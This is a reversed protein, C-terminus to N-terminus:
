GMLDENWQHVTELGAKEDYVLGLAAPVSGVYGMSSHWEDNASLSPLIRVSVGDLQRESDSVKVNTKRAQHLHGVLWERGQNSRWQDAAEVSMIANADTAKIHHTMGFLTNGYEYYRRLGTSNDVTVNKNGEAWIEIADGLFFVKKFDHNGPIIPVFVPAIESLEDIMKCMLARTERYVRQWDLESQQPTGSTTSPVKNIKGDDNFLDHGVVFQIQDIGEKSVKEALGHIARTFLDKQLDFNADRDMVVEGVALKDIHLDAPSIIAMKGRKKKARRKPVRVKVNKKAEEILERIEDRTDQVEVKPKFNGRVAYVNRPEKGGAQRVSCSFSAVSWERPDLGFFKLADAPASIDVDSYGLADMMGNKFNKQMEGTEPKAQATKARNRFVNRVQEPTAGMADSVEAWTSGSNRLDSIKAVDQDSWKKSM